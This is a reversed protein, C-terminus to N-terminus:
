RKFVLLGKDKEENEILQLTVKNNQELGILKRWEKPITLRKVGATTITKTQKETLVIYNTRKDQQKKQTM